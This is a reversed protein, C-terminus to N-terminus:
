RNKVEEFEVPTANVNAKQVREGELTEPYEESEIVCTYLDRDPNYELEVLTADAPMEGNGILDLAHIVWQRSLEVKAKNTSM